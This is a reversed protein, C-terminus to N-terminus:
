EPPSTLIARLSPGGDSWSIDAIRWGDPTAVLQYYVTEYTDIERFRVSAEAKGAGTDKLALDISDIQWQQGNIFPDFDMRGHSDSAMAQTADEGILGAMEPTFYPRAAAESNLSIGLNEPVAYVKYIDRLFAEAAPDAAWAPAAAAVLAALAARGLWGALRM